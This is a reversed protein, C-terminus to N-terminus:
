DGLYKKMLTLAEDVTAPLPGDYVVKENGVIVLKPIKNFPQKMMEQWGKSENTLDVDKDYVRWEKMVGDPGLPCKSNLYDHVRKGYIISNQRAPLTDETEVVMLVKPNKVPLVDPGPPVPGPPVPSPPVPVLEGFNVYKRATEVSSGKIARLKVSFKVNPPGTIILTKGNDFERLWAKEEPYVDWILASGEQHGEAKLEASTYLPNTEQGVIKLEALATSYFALVALMSATQVNKFLKIPSM